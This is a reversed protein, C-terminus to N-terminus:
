HKGEALFRYLETPLPATREPWIWKRTQGDWVAGAGSAVARDRYPVNLPIAKNAALRELVSTHVNGGADVSALTSLVDYEVAPFEAMRERIAPGLRTDDRYMKQWAEYRKAAAAQLVKSEALTASARAARKAEAKMYKKEDVLLYRAGECKFCVTGKVLNFSFHGTGDCRPCQVRILNPSHTTM